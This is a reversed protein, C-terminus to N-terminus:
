HQVDSEKFINRLFLLLVISRIYKENIDYKKHIKALVLNLLETQQDCQENWLRHLDVDRERVHEKCNEFRSQKEFYSVLLGAHERGNPIKYFHRDRTANIPPKSSIPPKEPCVAQSM